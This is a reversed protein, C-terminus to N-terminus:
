ATADTERILRAADEGRPAISCAFPLPHSVLGESYKVEVEIQCGSADKAKTVDFVALVSAVALWVEADALARGACIRRGFGFSLMPYDDNVTGDNNLFREPRFMEPDKYVREDHLMARPIFSPGKPIYYGEYVDDESAAHAVTMPTAQRWRITERFFAEVYPLSDRDGFDPLRNRGVVLDMEVQARKQAEQHLVMALIATTMASVSVDAGASYVMASVGKILAEQNEVDGTTDIGELLDSTVCPTATGAAMRQKVFTFPNEKMETTMGFCKRAYAKFGMGPLWEPLRLLIPFSNALMSGPLLANVLMETAEEAITVFRDEKPNVEYGYTVSMIISAAIHRLHLNFDEPKDLVNRLGERVKELVIPRYRLSAEYRFKQHVLRRNRRWKEGYRMLAINFDWGLLDVMPIDPRDSYKNSRKEFLDNAIKASNVVVVHTGFVRIHILDGYHKQWQTYTLWSAGAPVQLANGIIPLPKPGPPYPLQQPNVRRSQVFRNLVVALLGLVVLQAVVSVSM